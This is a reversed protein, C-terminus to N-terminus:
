QRRKRQKEENWLHLHSRLNCRILYSFLVSMYIFIYVLYSVNGCQFPSMMIYWVYAVLLTIATIDVSKHEVVKGLPSLRLMKNVDTGGGAQGDYM